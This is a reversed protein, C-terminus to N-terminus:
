EHEPSVADRARVDGPNARYLAPQPAEAAVPPLDEAKNDIATAIARATLMFLASLMGYGLAVAAVGYLM